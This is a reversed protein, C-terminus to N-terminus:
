PVGAPVRGSRDRGTRRGAASPAAGPPWAARPPAAATISSAGTISSSRQPQRAAVRSRTAVPTVLPPATSDYSHGTPTTTRVVHSGGPDRGSGTTEASWGPLNKTQNCRECLGQGNDLSTPGGQAHDVVHDVHRIPADCWPTRCTGDRRILLTRLNGDFCRRGSEMAVLQGSQPETYLRRLFVTGADRVLDRAAQAPILDAAPNSGSAADDSLFAPEADGAFLAADTMVLHVVEATSSSETAPQAMPGQPARRPGPVDASGGSDGIRASATTGTLREVLTDAMVQGRGRPDGSAQASSAAAKLAAYCAVGDKVPLLASLYTMTDPAPRVSVFRDNVAKARRRVASAPDLRCAAGWAADRVERASMAPLRDALLADVEARDEVTLCATERVAQTATWETVQGTTLADLTHPMENVLASALGLHRSGAHPSERRALAVQDAVGKGLQTAPVGRARQRARQSRDFAVTLRAQRAACANKLEELAAIQEIAEADDLAGDIVDDSSLGLPGALRTLGLRLARATLPSTMSDFM